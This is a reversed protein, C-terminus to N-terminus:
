LMTQAKQLGICLKDIEEKTNYFVLSARITGSIGYHRMVPEACHMGTRIAIGFKDLILGADYPHINELNFSMIGCKNPALGYMKLGNIENLKETAYNSVDKEYNAIAEMGIQTIYEIATGLSVAAVYNGTGAEFKLPPDAYTTKEFSVSDIMGGGSQYPPIEELWKEKGYLVGIGTEAYIKHGSFAFFDCDLDQVDVPIHQVAQAGDILVPIDQSHALEIIEKIPNIVGLANSVYVISILKTKETVLRKLKDMMLIGDNDFPAVKLRAKTHECLIQWPVINSHHEMESVIIEDGKKIFRSGFSNAVLNIAETTGSTFVIESVSRANIFEKVTKRANEYALSAQESLHHVGRHINSYSNTYFEAIKDLVVKPKQTTAANDLYVLLKGHIKKGLIPFDARIRDIDIM